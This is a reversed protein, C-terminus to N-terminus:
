KCKIAGKLIEYITVHGGGETLEANSDKGSKSVIPKIIDGFYEIASELNKLGVKDNDTWFLVKDHSRVFEENNILGQINGGTPLSVVRCWKGTKLKLTELVTLSDPEGETVILYGKNPLAEAQRQLYLKSGRTGGIVFMQKPLIRVKYGSLVSKTVIDEEDIGERSYYEFLVAELTGFYPSGRMRTGSYRMTRTSIGRWSEMYPFTKAQKLRDQVYREPMEYSIMEPSLVGDVVGQIKDVEQPSYWSLCSWCYGSLAGSDHSHIEVADGSRCGKGAPDHCPNNVSVRESHGSFLDDEHTKIPVSIAM